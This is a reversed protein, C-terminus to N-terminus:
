DFFGKPGVFYYVVDSAIKAITDLIKDQTSTDEEAGYVGCLVLASHMREVTAADGEVDIITRDMMAETEAVAADLEAAQEATLTSRDVEAADRLYDRTVWKTNRTGNYQPWRSPNSNVDVLTDDLILEVALRLAVDNGGIEHHQNEFLWTNDPFACTSADVSKDPSLYTDDEVTLEEGPLASTAGLSTSQIQIIGDSNVKNYSDVVAFFSYEEEGFFLGYGCITNFEGGKAKFEKINDVLNLQAQYFADTSEKLTAYEPASLYREALEPYASSPLMAWFQSTNHLLNEFLVDYASALLLELEARPLIRLLINILYGLAASDSEISMIYPFLTSYISEDTLNWDRQYFDALIETGDHVAVVSVIEKVDKSADFQDMYATFVTGGLSVNLLNVKDKGTDEKVFQIFDNLGRASEMVNGFLNFTYLYVEDEGVVDTYKQIPLQRYFWGRDYEGDFSNEDFESLPFHFDKLQLNNVLSGDVNTKQLSLLEDVLVQVGKALGCDTQTLLMMILPIAVHKLIVPVMNTTDVLLLTGNTTGGDENYLVENNEDCLYVPSHNIGPIIILPCAEDATLLKQAAADVSNVEVYNTSDDSTAFAVVCVSFVLSIALLVSVLKKATKKM